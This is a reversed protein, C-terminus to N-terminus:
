VEPFEHIKDPWDLNDKLFIPIDSYRCHKIISEVWEKNPKSAGPGTEAGVIAWDLWGASSLMVEIDEMGLLPEFSIYQINDKKPRLGWYRKFVNGAKDGEITTGLWCNDPFYFDLYRVPNKTLFQFTHQPSEHVIKLVEEIWEDPVWKGFLDGMSSVFIRKGKQLKTPENLRYKHFTPEFGFPYPDFKWKGRAMCNTKTKLIHLNDKTTCGIGRNFGSRRGFRKTIKRAYCYNCGHLCGTVPNWTKDTWEISTNNM